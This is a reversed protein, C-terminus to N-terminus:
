TYYNIYYILCTIPCLLQELLERKVYVKLKFNFFLSRSSVTQEVYEVIKICTCNQPAYGNVFFKANILLPVLRHMLKEETKECDLTVNNKLHECEIAGQARCNEFLNMAM